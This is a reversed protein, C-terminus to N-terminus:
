KAKVSVAPKTKGVVFAYRKMTEAAEGDEGKFMIDKGKISEVAGTEAVHKGSVLLILAGKELKFHEKIKQEPVEILLSDGPKYGDKEVTINRSDDLNVQIKGNRNVTKGKIKCLKLNAEGAEIEAPTLKGKSDLVMRYFKKTPSIGVVDMLGVPFRSDKVRKGDVLVDNAYLLKKVEKTTRACELMDKLVISIPMSLGLPHAGPSPRTVFKIGKRKIQWSNPTAFRKLHRKTM